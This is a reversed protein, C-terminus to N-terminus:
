EEKKMKEVEINILLQVLEDKKKDELEEDAVGANVAEAILDAKKLGNLVKRYEKLEAEEESIPDDQVKEEVKKEEQKPAMQQTTVPRGNAAETYLKKWEEVQQKLGAIEHDKAAIVAQMGEIKVLYEDNLKKIDKDFDEEVKPKVPAHGELFVGPFKGAILKEAIEDKVQAKNGTFKILEGEFLFSRNVHIKTILTKM